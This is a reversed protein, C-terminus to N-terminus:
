RIINKHEWIVYVLVLISTAIIAITESDSYLSILWGILLIIYFKWTFINYPVISLKM